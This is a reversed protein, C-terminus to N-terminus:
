MNVMKGYPGKWPYRQSQYDFALYKQWFCSRYSKFIVHNISHNRM